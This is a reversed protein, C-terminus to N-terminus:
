IKSNIYEEIHNSSMALVDNFDNMLRLYEQYMPKSNLIKVKEEIEKDVEKYFPDNNYELNVSKQQLSKIDKILTNIESDSELVKGIELYSKYEQSNEITQFLENIKNEIM